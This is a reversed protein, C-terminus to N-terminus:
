VAEREIMVKKDQWFETLAKQLGSIEILSNALSSTVGRVKSALEAKGKSELELELKYSDFLFQNIQNNMAIMKENM